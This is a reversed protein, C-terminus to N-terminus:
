HQIVLATIRRARHRRTSLGDNRRTLCGSDDRRHHCNCAPARVIVSHSRSDSGCHLPHSGDPLHSSLGGDRPVKPKKAEPCIGQFLAHRIDAWALRSRNPNSRPFWSLRQFAVSTGDGDSLHVHSSRGHGCGAPGILAQPVEASDRFKSSKGPKGLRNQM